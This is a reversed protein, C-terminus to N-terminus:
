TFFFLSFYNELRRLESATAPINTVLREEASCYEQTDPQRMSGNSTRFPFDKLFQPILGVSSVRGEEDIVRLFSHDANILNRCVNWDAPFIRNTNSVIQIVCNRIENSPPRSFQAAKELVLRHKEPPLKFIPVFRDWLYPHHRTLGKEDGLYTYVQNTAKEYIFVENYRESKRFDFREKLESFKTYRGEVLIAPENDVLPEIHDFLKMQSGLPGSLIFLAFEPFRYLDEKKFGYREWKLELEASKQYRTTNQRFPATKLDLLTLQSELEREGKYYDIARNGLEAALGPNAAGKEQILQTTVEIVKSATEERYASDIFKYFRTSLPDAVFLGNSFTLSSNNFSNKAELLEM